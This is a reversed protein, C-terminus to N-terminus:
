HGLGKEITEILSGIEEIKEALLEGDGGRTTLQRLFRLNVLQGELEDRKPDGAPLNRQYTFLMTRIAEGSQELLSAVANLDVEDEQLLADLEGMSQIAPKGSRFEVTPVALYFAREEDTIMGLEHFHDVLQLVGPTRLAAPRTQPLSPPTPNYNQTSPLRWPPLASSWCPM